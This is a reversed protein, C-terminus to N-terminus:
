QRLNPLSQLWASNRVAMLTRQSYIHPIECPKCISVNMKRYYFDVWYSVAVRFTMWTPRGSGGFNIGACPLRQNQPWGISWRCSQTNLVQLILSGGVGYRDVCGRLGANAVEICFIWRVFIPCTVWPILFSLLPWSDDTWSSSFM